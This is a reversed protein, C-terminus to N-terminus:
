LPRICLPRIHVLEHTPIDLMLATAKEVPWSHADFANVQAYYAPFQAVFDYHTVLIITDTFKGWRKVLGYGGILDPPSSADSFFERRAEFGIGGLVEDIIGACSRARKADSALLSVSSSGVQAKISESLARFEWAGIETLEETPVVYEGVRAVILKNM